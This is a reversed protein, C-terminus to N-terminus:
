WYMITILTVSSQARMKCLARLKLAMSFESAVFRLVTCMTGFHFAFRSHNTATTAAPTCMTAWHFRKYQKLSGSINRGLVNNISSVSWNSKSCLFRNCQAIRMYSISDQKTQCKSNLYRKIPVLFIAKSQM